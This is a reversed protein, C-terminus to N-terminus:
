PKLWPTLEEKVQAHYDNLWKKERTNMLSLDILKTDIPCLTLTEFGLFTGFPTKEKEVCLLINEIRIGYEGERYIGPENSLVMGPMLSMDTYEQRISVPGEHVFLIHGVGHGTGHGYNLGNEWLPQRALIDLNCGKTGEPFRAQTLAIMGKLVLTFDTKQQNSVKGLAVTRTIDTTGQLYHAGSDFLLIGEPELPLANDPEVSLHIMAGHEKYGFISPFSEGMYDKQRSRLEALKRGAAYENVKGDTINQQFWYLFEVLAAGDKKMAQRFGEQETRNKIAKMQAVFSKKERVVNNNQLTNFMAYSATSPDILVHKDRITELYPFFRNYEMCEIKEEKLQLKLPLPMNNLDSFLIRSNRGIIAYSLFVPNYPIDSGRLNFAWATEDLANIILYDAKQNILIEEMREMKESRSIGTQTEPVEFIPGGSKEPRNKWIKGFPDTVDVLEIGTNQLSKQMMHFRNVTLTQPDFGVKSGPKLSAKLWSEPTVAYLTRLKLMKFETGKLENEAQIFYRPDTWLCAEQHTIIVTGYSGTFGSIFERIKWSDPLYESAHPDSGSIFWADLGYSLMVQRLANLRDPIKNM